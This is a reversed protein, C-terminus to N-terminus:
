RRRASRTAKQIKTYVHVREHCGECSPDVHVGEVGNSVVKTELTKTEGEPELSWGDEGRRRTEDWSTESMVVQVDQIKRPSELSMEEVHDVASSRYPQFSLVDHSDAEKMGMSSGSTQLRRAEDREKKVDGYITSKEACTASGRRIEKRGAGENRLSQIM